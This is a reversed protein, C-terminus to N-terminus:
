NGRLLVLHLLILLLVPIRVQLKAKNEKLSRHFARTAERARRRAETETGEM